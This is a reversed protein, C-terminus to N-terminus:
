GAAPGRRVAALRTRGGLRRSGLRPWRHGHVTVPLGASGSGPGAVCARGVARPGLGLAGIHGVHRRGGNFRVTARPNTARLSTGRPARPAGRAPASPAARGIAVPVLSAFGAATLGRTVSLVIRHCGGVGARRRGVSLVTSDCRGAAGLRRGASLLAGHCRGAAALTRGLSVVARRCLGATAGLIARTSVVGGRRWRAAAIKGACVRAWAVAGDIGAVRRRPGDPVFSRAGRLPIAATGPAARRCRRLSAVGAGARGTLRVGPATVAGSGMGSLRVTGRMQVARALVRRLSRRSRASARM